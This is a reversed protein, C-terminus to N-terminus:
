KIQRPSVPAAENGWANRIYSLISAIQKSNLKHYFPPMSGMGYSVTVIIPEPDHLTVIPNGALRPFLTSWGQGDVQHCEACYEVYLVEGHSILEQANPPRETRTNCATVIIAFLVGIVAVVELRFRKPSV